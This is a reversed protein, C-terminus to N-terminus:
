QHPRNHLLPSSARGAVWGAKYDLWKLQLGPHDFGYQKGKRHAKVSMRFWPERHAQEAVAYKVFDTRCADLQTDSLAIM